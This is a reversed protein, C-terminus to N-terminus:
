SITPPKRFMGYYKQGEKQAENGGFGFLVAFLFVVIMSGTDDPVQWATADALIAFLGNWIVGIALHYAYKFDFAEIKGESLKRFYPLLVAIINGLLMGLFVVFFTSAM